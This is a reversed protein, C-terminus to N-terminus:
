ENNSDKTEFVIDAVFWSGFVGSIFGIGLWLWDITFSYM